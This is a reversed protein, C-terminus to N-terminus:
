LLVNIIMIFLVMILMRQDMGDICCSMSRSSLLSLHDSMDSLTAANQIPTSGVPSARSWCTM